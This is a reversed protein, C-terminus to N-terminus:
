FVRNVRSVEGQGRQERSPCHWSSDTLNGQLSKPECPCFLSNCMSPCGDGARGLLIHMQLHEFCCSGWVACPLWRVALLVCPNVPCAKTSCCNGSRPTHQHVAHRPVAAKSRQWQGLQNLGRRHLEIRATFHAKAPAKRQSCRFIFRNWRSKAERERNLKWRLYNDRPSSILLYM